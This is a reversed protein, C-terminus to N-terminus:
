YTYSYSFNMTRNNYGYRTDFSETYGEIGLSKYKDALLFARNHTIAYLDVFDGEFSTTNVGNLLVNNNPATVYISNGTFALTVDRNTGVELSSINIDRSAALYFKSALVAETSLQGEHVYDIASSTRSLTTYVPRNDTNAQTEWGTATYGITDTYTGSYPAPNFRRSNLNTLSIYGANRFLRQETSVLDNTINIEVMSSISNALNRTNTISTVYGWPAQALQQNLTLSFKHSLYLAAGNYLTENFGDDSKPAGIAGTHFYFSGRSSTFRSEDVVGDKIVFTGTGTGVNVYSVSTYSATLILENKAINNYLINQSVKIFDSDSNEQYLINASSTYRFGPASVNVTTMFSGSPGGSRSQITRYSSTTNTSFRYDVSISREESTSYWAWDTITTSVYTETVQKSASDVTYSSGVYVISEDRSIEIGDHMENDTTLYYGTMADEKSLLVYHPEMKGSLTYTDTQTSTRYSTSESQISTTTNRTSVDTMVLGNDEYSYGNFIFNHKGGTVQVEYIGNVFGTLSASEVYPTDATWELGYGRTTYFSKKAFFHSLYDGNSYPITNGRATYMSAKKGTWKLNNSKTRTLTVNDPVTFYLSMQTGTAAPGGINPATTVTSKFSETLQYKSPNVNLESTTEYVANEVTTNTEVSYYDTDVINTDEVTKSATYSLTTYSFEETRKGSTTFYDTENITYFKAM